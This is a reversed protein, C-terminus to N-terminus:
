PLVEFDVRQSVPPSGKALRDSVLIEFLYDGPPMTAPLGFQGAVRLRRYGPRDAPQYPYRQSSHIPRGDRYLVFQTDFSPKGTNRDIRPHIVEVEYRVQAGSRFQRVAPGAIPDDPDEPRRASLLVGSLSIRDRKIRPAEIFQSASGIRGSSADEVAARLQYFGSNKLLHNVGFVVGTRRLTDIEEPKVLLESQRATQAVANGQEDFTGILTRLVAKKGGAPEDRLELDKADVHLLVSVYPGDKEDHRFVPTLRIGVSQAGFPSFLAAVIAQRGEPRTQEDTLGFFGRRYRLRLGPRLLKVQLKRFPVKGQEREFTAPGPKYGLLYFGSQDELVRSLSRTLDNTNAM